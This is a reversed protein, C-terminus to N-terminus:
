EEERRGEITEELVELSRNINELNYNILEIAHILRMWADNERDIMHKSVLM